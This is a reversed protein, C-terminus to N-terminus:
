PTEPEVLGERLLDLLFAEVEQDCQETSVDYRARLDARLQSPRRPEDLLDWIAKAVGNFGYLVGQQADVAVTEGDVEAVDIARRRLAVDDALLEAPRPGPRRRHRFLAPGRDSM